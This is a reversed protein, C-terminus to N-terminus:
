SRALWNLTPTSSISKAYVLNINTVPILITQGPVLRIPQTSANGMVMDVTNTPDSQVLVATCAQSSGIAAASTSLTSTGAYLTDSPQISALRQAIRQLRGNLGSSATDSAPAAETVGGLLTSNPTIANGADAGTGAGDMYIINGGSDKVTYAM